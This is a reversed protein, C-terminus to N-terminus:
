GELLLPTDFMLFINFATYTAQVNVLLSFTTTANPQIQFFATDSSLEIDDNFTTAPNTYRIFLPTTVGNQSANVQIVNYVNPATVTVGPPPIQDVIIMRLRAPTPLPPISVTALTAQGVSTAQGQLPVVPTIPPVIFNKADKVLFAGGNTGDYRVSVRVDSDNPFRQSM